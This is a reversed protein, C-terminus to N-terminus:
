TREMHRELRDVFHKMTDGLSDMAGRLGRLEGRLSEFAAGHEGHGDKLEDIQTDHKTLKTDHVAQRELVRGLRVLLGGVTAFVTVFGVLIGMEGAGM